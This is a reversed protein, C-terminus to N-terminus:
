CRWAPSVAKISIRWNWDKVPLMMHRQVRASSFIFLIHLSTGLRRACALRRSDTPPTGRKHFNVVGDDERFCHLGEEVLKLRM